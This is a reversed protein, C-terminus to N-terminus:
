FSYTYSFSPMFPFLSLGKLVYNCGESAPYVSYVNFHNYLNCISFNITSLGKKHYLHYNMGIDLRHYDPLRYGNKVSYSSLKYYTNFTAAGSPNTVSTGSPMSNSYIGGKPTENTYIIFNRAILITEALTGRSGTKYIFTGSIDFKMSIKWTLNASFNNRCDNRAYFTKGNYVINDASDFKKLSKSWTYAISGTIRGTNKQVLFELGYAWGYGVSVMNEWGDSNNIYSVGEKYELVNNMTKYYGEVSFHVKKKLDFFIGTSYLASTMPEIPGTVPVWIDSPMILNSSSLLHIGQSLFSYSGKISLGESLLIRMSLRPEPFAYSRGTIFYLNFRLGANVRLFRSVDIDDEAYLALNNMFLSNGQPNDTVDETKIGNVVTESYRYASVTPNFLQLSNSIGAMITHRDSPAYIIDYNLSIDDIESLYGVSSITTNSSDVGTEDVYTESYSQDSAVTFNYRYRSYNLMTGSSLKDSFLHSWKLGSVINGWINKNDYKSSISYVKDDETNQLETKNGDSDIEDRGLYFNYSLKDSDSFNCSLKANIDYYYMNTFQTLADTNDYVANLFASTILNYFSRRGSVIFSTKSSDVPGELNFKASLLGITASGHYTKLDGEKIGIDVVGSLRSGYMAPFCGRYVTVRDLIDANFVSVFGKMHEPNYITAGDLTIMNQDYNGGRIYLGVNGDGGSQIGPLLQIYKLVDTEGFLAPTTKIQTVPLEIVSMRSNMANNYKERAYVTVAEISNDETLSVNVTTDSKLMLIFEKAKYGVYSFLLRVEGPTLSFSYYGNANSYTGKNKNQADIITAGTLAEGAYGSIKGSVTVRKQGTMSGYFGLLFILAFVRLYSSKM